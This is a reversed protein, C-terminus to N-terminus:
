RAGAKRRKERRQDWADLMALEADLEDPVLHGYTDEIMQLSTGMRRSLTLTPMGAALAESAYLHRLNKAPFYDVGAATIAPEWVRTRFNESRLHGGEPAPFLIPTDIRPAMAALAARVNARLPVNRRQRRTKAGDPGLERVRGSSYVRRVHLMNGSIDSRHLGLFEELRLGAGALLMPAASYREDIEDLIALIADWSPLEVESRNPRPNPVKAANNADLWGYTVACGFAQRVARHVDYAYGPSLQKRWVAFEYPEIEVALRPGFPDRAQRLQRRLKRMTAEDAEHVSLFRDFLADVTLAGDATSPGNDLEATLWSQAEHKTDHTRKHKTSARGGERYSAEWRGNALQRISGRQGRRSAVSPGYSAKPM